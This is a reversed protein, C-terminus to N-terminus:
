LRTYYIANIESGKLVHILIHLFYIWFFVAYAMLGRNKFCFSSVDDNYFISFAANNHLVAILYKFSCSCYPFCLFRNFNGQLRVCWHAAFCLSVKLFIDNGNCQCLLSIM